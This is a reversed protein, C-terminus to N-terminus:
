WALLRGYLGVAHVTTCDALVKHSHKSEYNRLKMEYVRLFVAIYMVHHRYKSHRYINDDSM